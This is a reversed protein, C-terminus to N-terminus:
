TYKQLFLFIHSSLVLFFGMTWCFVATFFAPIDKSLTHQGVGREWRGSFIWRDRCGPTAEEARGVKKNVDRVFFTGVQRKVRLQHSLFCSPHPGRYEVACEEIVLTQECCDQYCLQDKVYGSCNGHKPIIIWGSSNQKRKNACELFSLHYIILIIM